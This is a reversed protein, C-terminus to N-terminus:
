HRSARKNRVHAYPSISYTAHDDSVQRVNLSLHQIPLLKRQRRPPPHADVIQQRLREAEDNESPLGPQSEEPITECVDASITQRGVLIRSQRGALLQRRSSPSVAAIKDPTLDCVDVGEDQDDITALLLQQELSADKM